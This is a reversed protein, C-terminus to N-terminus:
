SADACAARGARARRRPGTRLVSPPPLAWLVLLACGAVVGLGWVVTQPARPDLAALLHQRVEEAGVKLGVSPDFALYHRELWARAAAPEALLWRRGERVVLLLGAAGAGLLLACPASGSGRWWRGRGRGGQRDLWDAGYGALVAAGFSWLFAFRGPSRLGHAGLLHETVLVVWDPGYRGTSLLLAVPALLAFFTVYRDHRLAVALLALLLVPVGVYVTVEWSVWYGFNSGDPRSLLHPFLVTLLRFPTVSNITAAETAIGPGRASRAALDLLPLLQVAALGAGVLGMVAGIQLGALLRPRPVLSRWALYPFVTLATFVCVQVHVALAQMALAVGAFAALTARRGAPRPGSVRLAREVFCLALPLWIMGGDLNEHVVQAVMFGSLMFGLGAVLSGTRGAGTARLFAYTFAGALYFRALRLAVLAAPPPLFRLALLHPPYLMGAEGDAFLPYGGFVGPEWIPLRGEKLAAAVTSLLPYYFYRTDAEWRVTGEVLARGLLLAAALGLLAQAALDRWPLRAAIGLLAGGLEGWPPAPVPVVAPSPVAAAPRESPRRRPAPFPWALAM